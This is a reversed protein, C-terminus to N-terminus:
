PLDDASWCGLVPSPWCGEQYADRGLLELLAALHQRRVTTYYWPTAADAMMDWLYARWHCERAYRSSADRHIPNLQVAARREFWDASARLGDRIALCIERPPLRVADALPPAHRLQDFRRVLIRLDDGFRQDHLLLDERSDMLELELATLGVHWRWCPSTQQAEVPFALLVLSTLLLLTGDM